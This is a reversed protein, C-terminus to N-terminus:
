CFSLFVNHGWKHIRNLQRWAISGSCPLLKSKVVLNGSIGSYLKLFMKRPLDYVFHPPSVKELGKELFDFNLM